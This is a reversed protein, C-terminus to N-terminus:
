TTLSIGYTHALIFCLIAEVLTIGGSRCEQYSWNVLAASEGAVAIGKVARPFDILVTLFSIRPLGGASAVWRRM